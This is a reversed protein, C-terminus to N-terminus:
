AQQLEPGWSQAQLSQFSDRQPPFDQQSLPIVPRRPPFVQQTARAILLRGKRIQSTKGRNETSSKKQVSM